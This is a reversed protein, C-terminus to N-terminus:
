ADVAQQMLDRIPVGCSLVDEGEPLRIVFVNCVPALHERWRAEAIRGAMDADFALWVTRFQLKARAAELPKQAAGAPLGLVDVPRDRLQWAAWVTDTEGECLVVAPRGQDRWAGYLAPFRSGLETWRTGERRVSRYRIGTLRQDWDYHPFVATPAPLAAGAWEWEDVAYAGAEGMHKREIFTQVPASLSPQRTLAGELQAPTAAARLATPKRDAPLWSSAQMAPILEEVAIRCAELFGCGSFLRILDIVDGNAGCGFCGYRLPFGDTDEAWLNFSPTDDQHPLPCPTM